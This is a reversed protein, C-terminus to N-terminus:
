ERLRRFWCWDGDLARGALGPGEAVDVLAGEEAVAVDVLERRRDLDDVLAEDPGKVDAVGSVAVDHVAADVGDELVLDLSLRDEQLVVVDDPDLTSGRGEVDVPHGEEGGLSLLESGPSVASTLHTGNYDIYDHHRSM